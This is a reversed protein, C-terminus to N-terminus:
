IPTPATSTTRPLAVGAATTTTTAAATAAAAAEATAAMTAAAAAAIAGISTSTSLEIADTVILALVRENHEEDHENSHKKIPSVQPAQTTDHIPPPPDLPPPPNYEGPATDNPPFEVTLTTAHVVDHAGMENDHEESQTGTRQNSQNPNSEPQPHPVHHPTNANPTMAHSTATRTKPANM